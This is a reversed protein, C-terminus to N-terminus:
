APCRRTLVRAGALSMGSTVFPGGTRIDDQIKSAEVVVGERTVGTPRKQYTKRIGVQRMKHAKERVSVVVTKLWHLEPHNLALGRLGVSSPWCDGM